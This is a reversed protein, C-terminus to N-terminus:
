VKESISIMAPREIIGGFGDRIKETLVIENATIENIVGVNMGLYNGNTVKQITGDATQVLAWLQGDQQLTGVMSLSDLPFDELYERSRHHDIEVLNRKQTITSVNNTDFISSVANPDFPDKSTQPYSFTPHNKPAPITSIVGPPNNKIQEAYQELEAVDNGCATITIASVICLCSTIYKM